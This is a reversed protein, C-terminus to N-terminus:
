PREKGISAISPAAARLGLIRQIVHHVHPRLRPSPTGKNAGLEAPSSIAAWDMLVGM